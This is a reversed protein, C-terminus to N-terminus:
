HYSLSCISQGSTMSHQAYDMYKSYGDVSKEELKRQGHAYVAATTQISKTARL